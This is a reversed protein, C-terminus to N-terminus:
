QRNGTYERNIRTLVNPAIYDGRDSSRTRRLLVITILVLAGFGLAAAAYIM